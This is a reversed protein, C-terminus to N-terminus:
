TPTEAAPLRLSFTCGAGPPCDIDLRGGHLAAIRSALVLGIGVGGHRRELAADLQVFPQFLRPLDEAAIGPGSDAVEIV